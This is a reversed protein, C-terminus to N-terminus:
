CLCVYFVYIYIYICGMESSYYTTTVHWALRRHERELCRTVARRWADRPREWVDVHRTSSTGVRRRTVRQGNGCTSTDRAPREWVDVHRMSATGVRRRAAHKRQRTLPTCKTVFPKGYTSNATILGCTDCM